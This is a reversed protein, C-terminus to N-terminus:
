TLLSFSSLRSAFVSFSRADLTWPTSDFPCLRVDLTWPGSNSVWSREESWGRSALGWIRCVDTEGAEDRNVRLTTKAATSNIEAVTRITWYRDRGSVLGWDRVGLGWDRGRGSLGEMM